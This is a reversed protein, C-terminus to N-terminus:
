EPCFFKCQFNFNTHKILSSGLLSNVASFTSSQGFVLDLYGHDYVSHHTGMKESSLTMPEFDGDHCPYTLQLSESTESITSTHIRWNGRILPYYTQIGAAAHIAQNSEARSCQNIDRPFGSTAIPCHRLSPLVTAAHLPRLGHHPFYQVLCFLSWHVEVVVDPNGIHVDFFFDM